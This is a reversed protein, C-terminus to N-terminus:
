IGEGDTSELAATGTDTIATLFTASGKTFIEVTNPPIMLDTATAAVAAGSPGSFHFRAGNPGANYLRVANSTPDLPVSTAGSSTTVALKQTAKVGPHFATIRM